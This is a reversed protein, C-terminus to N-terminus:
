PHTCIIGERLGNCFTVLKSLSKIHHFLVVNVGDFNVSKQPYPTDFREM